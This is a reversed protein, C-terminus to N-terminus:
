QTEIAAMQAKISDAYLAGTLSVPSSQGAAVAVADHETDVAGSDVAGLLDAPLTGAQSVTTPGVPAAPTFCPFDSMDSAVPASFADM